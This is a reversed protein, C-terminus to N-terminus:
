HHKTYKYKSVAANASQQSKRLEDLKRKDKFKGNDVDRNWMRILFESCRGRGREIEIERKRKEGERVGGGGRQWKGKM